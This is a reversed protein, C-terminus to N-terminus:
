KLLDHFVKQFKELKPVIVFNCYPASKNNEFYAQHDDEAVYFVGAPSLETVVPDEWIKASDLERIIAAAMEKQEENHYFIASRYQTGVDAGQRNLTTPNHTRFFVGLLQRYSILQPDFVIQVAEAHGTTGNCVERYSPNKVDGGTYGSRVSHVGRLRSFIAETCWFCGSALTATDSHKGNGPKQKGDTHPPGILGLFFIGAMMINM